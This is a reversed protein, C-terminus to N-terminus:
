LIGKLAAANEPVPAAGTQGAGQGESEGEPTETGPAPAEGKEPERRVPATPAEAPPVGGSEVAGNEFYRRWPESVSRPSDLYREYMEEILWDNRGAAAIDPTEPM